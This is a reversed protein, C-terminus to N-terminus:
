QANGEDRPRQPEPVRLTEGFPNPPPRAVGHLVYVTSSNSSSEKPDPGKLWDEGVPWDQLLPRIWRM